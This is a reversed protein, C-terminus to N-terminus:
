GSPIFYPKLIQITNKLLIAKYFLLYYNCYYIELPM